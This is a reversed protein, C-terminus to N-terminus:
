GYMSEILPTYKRAIADRRLKLTPTVEDGGPEWASDVVQFSRIQEPESLRQNAQAIAEALLERVGWDCALAALGGDIGKARAYAEAAFADLAVLATNYPRADGIAMVQGILPHASRVCAEINAPSM